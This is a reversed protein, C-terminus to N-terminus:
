CLTLLWFICLPIHISSHSRLNDITSTLISVTRSGLHQLSLKSQLLVYLFLDETWLGWFPASTDKKASIGLQGAWMRPGNEERAKGSHGSQQSKNQQVWCAETMTARQTRKPTNEMGTWERNWNPICGKAKFAQFSFPRNQTKPCSDWSLVLVTKLKVLSESRRLLLVELKQSLTEKGIFHPYYNVKTIYEIKNSIALTQLKLM